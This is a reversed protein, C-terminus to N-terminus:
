RREIFTRSHGDRASTATSHETGTEVGRWAGIAYCAGIAVCVLSTVIMFTMRERLQQAYPHRVFLVLPVGVLGRALYVVAASSLVVRALPLQRSAGAGVLAYVAWVGLVLAIALTLVTPMIAGREALRAMREGAGFARYWAPGGLVIGVHLLAALGSATGGALLWGSSGHMPRTIDDIM